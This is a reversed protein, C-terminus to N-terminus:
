NGRRKSLVNYLGQKVLEGTGAGAANAWDTNGLASGVSSGALSGALNTGLRSLNFGNGQAADFLTNLGASGLANGFGQSTGLANGIGNFVGSGGLGASLAGFGTGTQSLNYGAGIASFLPAFTPFAASLIGPLVSSLINNSSKKYAYHDSTNDWGPLNGANDKSVFVNLDNPDDSMRQVLNKWSDQDQIERRLYAGSRSSGSTDQKLMTFPDVYGASDATGPGLNMKYGSLQGNSLVPTSGYLSQLGRIQETEPTGVYNRGGYDSAFTSINRGALLEGLVEWKGLDGGTDQADWVFDKESYVPNNKLDQTHWPTYDPNPAEYYVDLFEDPRPTPIYNSTNFSQLEKISDQLSKYGIGLSTGTSDLINYQGKGLDVTSYGDSPNNYDFYSFPTQQAQVQVQPQVMFEGYKSRFADPDSEGLRMLERRSRQTNGFGSRNVADSIQSQDLEM